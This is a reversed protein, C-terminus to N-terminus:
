DELVSKQPGDSVGWMEALRGDQVRFIEILVPPADGAPAMGAVSSRVAVKDGDVLIDEPVVRMEPYRAVVARWVAKGAEFGITGLPHSFFDPTFLEAAQDFQRNNFCEQMRLVLSRPDRTTM